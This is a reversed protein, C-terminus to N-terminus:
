SIPYGVINEINRIRGWMRDLEINTQFARLVHPSKLREGANADDGILLLVLGWLMSDTVIFKGEDLGVYFGTKYSVTESLSADHVLGCRITKYLLTPLDGFSDFTVDARFVVAGGTMMHFIFQLNDEVYRRIRQGVSKTEPYKIKATADLCTSIQLLANELDGKFLKVVAEDLRNGRSM